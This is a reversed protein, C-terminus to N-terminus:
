QFAPNAIPALPDIGALSRDIDQSDSLTANYDAINRNLAAEDAEYMRQRQSVQYKLFNLAQLTNLPYGPAKAYAVISELENLLSQIDAILGQRQQELQARKAAFMAENGSHLTTLANRDTFYRQYYRELDPSLSPFETGLISHLENNEQGPESIQYQGMRQTLTNDGLRRYASQLLQDIRGRESTSLRAYAEHLMEHAATVLVADSLDARDFNLLYIHHLTHCGLLHYESTQNGCAAHFDANTKLQPNTLYFINTGNTSMYSHEAVAAITEPARYTQLYWFDAINQRTQYLLLCLVAIGLVLWSLKHKM